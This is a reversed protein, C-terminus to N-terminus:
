TTEEEPVSFMVDNGNADTPRTAVYIMRGACSVCVNITRGRWGGKKRNRNWFKGVEDRDHNPYFCLAMAKSTSTCISCATGRVEKMIARLGSLAMVGDSWRPPAQQVSPGIDRRQNPPAGGQDTQGGASAATRPGRGPGVGGHVACLHPRGGDRSM